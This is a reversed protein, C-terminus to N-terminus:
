QPLAPLQLLYQTAQEFEGRSKAQMALEFLVNRRSAPNDLWSPDALMRIALDPQDSFLRFVTRVEGARMLLEILRTEGNARVEADESNRALHAYLARAALPDKQELQGALALWNGDDGMLLQHQNGLALGYAEYSRWLKDASAQLLEPANDNQAALLNEQAEAQGAADQLLTAAQALVAWYGADGSKKLAARAQEVAVPPSIAGASLKVFLGLAGDRLQPLWAMAEVAKGNAALGQVFNVIEAQSLPRFDQQFRLIALYADSGRGQSFCIDIVLRRAERAQGADLGGQWLVRALSERAEADHHLAFAAQAARLSASDRLAASADSPLNRVHQLLEPWRKLKYLLDWRLAEWGFWQARDPTAAQIQEVTSLALQPAGMRALKM